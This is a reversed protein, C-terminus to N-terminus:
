REYPGIDPASGQPREIGDIDTAPAGAESGADVGPSAATLRYDGTGDARYDVMMPAAVVTGAQTGTVLELATRNRHLLNNLYRNNPGLRGNEGIGVVSDIVVNNVVLSNSAHVGPPDDGAGVVIGGGDGTRPAGAAFVLNNAITVGTAAHWTHIGWAAVRYVVNNFVKGGAQSLYIGHVFSCETPGIDHIWSGIVYNGDSTYSAHNVGAGGNKTCAISTATDYV